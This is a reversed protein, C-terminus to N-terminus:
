EAQPHTTARKASAVNMFRTCVAALVALAGVYIGIPQLSGYHAVLSTAVLPALGGGIAAALQIGISIGSFRLNVPFQAAFLASQPGFLLAYNVGLALAV